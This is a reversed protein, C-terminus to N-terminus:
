DKDHNEEKDHEILGRMSWGCLEVLVTDMIAREVDSANKFLWLLNASKSDGDTEFEERFIDLVEVEKEIAADILETETNGLFPTYFPKPEYGKEENTSKREFSDACIKYAAALAKVAGTPIAETNRELVPGLVGTIEDPTVPDTVADEKGLNLRAPVVFRNNCDDCCIGNKRVPWPDNGYEMFKKGCICCIKKDKM